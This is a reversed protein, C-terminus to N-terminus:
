QHRNSKSVDKAHGFTFTEKKKFQTISTKRDKLKLSFKYYQSHQKHHTQFYVTGDHVIFGVHNFMMEAM